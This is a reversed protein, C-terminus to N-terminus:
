WWDVGRRAERSAAKAEANEKQLWRCARFFWKEGPKLPNDVFYADITAVTAHLDPIFPYDRQWTAWTQATVQLIEGTFVYKPKADFILVNSDPADAGIDKKDEINKIDEPKDRQQGAETGPATGNETGRPLSVRQYEDYKCITIVTVGTGNRTMVLTETKLRNVFREVRSKSWQWIDAMFRYSHACEGRKLKIVSTGARVARDKWAAEKILWIWAERETFPEKAFAPHDFLGRDVAFVGRESV